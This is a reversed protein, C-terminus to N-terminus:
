AKRSERWEEARKKAAQQYEAEEMARDEATEGNKELYESDIKDDIGNWIMNLMLDVSDLAQMHGNIVNELAEFRKDEYMHSAGALADRAKALAADAEAMANNAVELYQNVTYNPERIKVDIEKDEM